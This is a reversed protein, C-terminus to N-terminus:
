IQKRVSNGNGKRKGDARYIYLDGKRHIDVNLQFVAVGDGDLTLFRIYLSQWANKRM